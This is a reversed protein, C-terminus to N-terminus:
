LQNRGAFKKYGGVGCVFIDLLGDANVDAMTVGTKWNGIGGTRSQETIDKFKFNGQNLYLKNSGQNSTFYLDPLSDNNIDGIAVGGGNYFYLYEVINFDDTEELSNEFSVGSSFSEIREFAPKVQQTTEKDCSALVQGCVIAIGTAVLARANHNKRM